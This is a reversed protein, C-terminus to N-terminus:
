MTKLLFNWPELLPLDYRADVFVEGVRSPYGLEQSSDFSVIPLDVDCHFLNQLLRNPM